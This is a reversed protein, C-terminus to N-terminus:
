CKSNRHEILLELTCARVRVVYKEPNEDKDITTDVLNALADLDGMEEIGYMEAMNKM